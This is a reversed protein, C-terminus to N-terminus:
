HTGLGTCNARHHPPRHARAAHRSASRHPPHHQCDRRCRSHPWPKDRAPCHDYRPGRQRQGAFAALEIGGGYAAGHLEATTRECLRHIRRAPNRTFDRSTPPRSTPAHASNESIVAAASPRAREGCLLPESRRTPRPWPSPKTWKM